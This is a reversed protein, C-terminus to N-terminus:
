YGNKLNTLVASIMSPVTTDLEATFTVTQNLVTNLQNDLTIPSLRVKPMTFTLSPHTTSGITVDTNILAISMAQRTNALAIAEITTTDTYRLVMEGTVGFSESDFSTPDIAGFPTWRDSKSSIKLKISKIDLATAGALGSTLSAIKVTVHKSTFENEAIYAATDSGTVGTKTSISATFQAWDSKTVDLEFDTVDGLAYRRNVVPNVRVFTLSPPLTSNNVTFTNDYVITEGAHLAAAATGFVNYLLLGITQDTVKGNLSGEAWEEVIASDNIDEQRGLASNNQVQTTKQDLTLALHPQWFSPAVSTGPTTEKGVGVSERRGIFPNGPM